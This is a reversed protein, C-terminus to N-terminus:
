RNMIRTMFLPNRWEKVFYKVDVNVTNAEHYVQNLTMKYQLQTLLLDGQEIMLRSLM